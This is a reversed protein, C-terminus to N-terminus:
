IRWGVIEPVPAGSVEADDQLFGRARLYTAVAEEYSLTVARAAARVMDMADDHNMWERMSTDRMWRQRQFTRTM